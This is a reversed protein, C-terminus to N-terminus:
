QSFGGLTVEKSPVMNTTAPRQRVLYNKEARYAFEIVEKRRPYDDGVFEASCFEEVALRATKLSNTERMAVVFEGVFHRTNLYKRM